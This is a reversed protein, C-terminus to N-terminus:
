DFIMAYRASIEPALSIRSRNRCSAPSRGADSPCSSAQRASSPPYTKRHLGAIARGLRPGSSLSPARTPQSLRHPRIRQHWRARTPGHALSRVAGDRRLPVPAPAPLLAPGRDASQIPTSVPEPSSRCEGSPAPRSRLSASFTQAKALRPDLCHVAKVRRILAHVMDSEENKQGGVFLPSLTSFNPLLEM